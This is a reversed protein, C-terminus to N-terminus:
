IEIVVEIMTWIKLNKGEGHYGLNPTITWASQYLRKKSLISNKDVQTRM